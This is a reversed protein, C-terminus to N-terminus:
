QRRRRLSLASGGAADPAVAPRARRPRAIRDIVTEWQRAVRDVAFRRASHGANEGLSRRLAASAMLRALTRALAVVNECEVLMGDYGTKILERPGYPCDFAVVPLGCAMAEGLANPFGEYRSPLVFASAQEAWGGQVGSVGRLTIRGAAASAEIAAQLARRDPGEGWIDLVWDPHDGAVRAFAEILLDFGKQHTLRGVAVLRLPAPADEYPAPVGPPPVIPNPIVAVRGRAARPVSEIARMTQAVIADARHLLLSNARNWFPSAAQKMPNNRECVALKLGTGITALLTLVNIKTLFSFVIDPRERRLAARLRFVRRFLEFGRRHRAGDGRSSDLRLLLVRGDVWHYVRDQPTDFTCISVHWGAEVWRSALLSIVREAGGPGLAETVFCIRRSPPGKFDDRGQM